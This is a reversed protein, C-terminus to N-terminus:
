PLILEDIHCSPSRIDRYEEVNLNYLAQVAMGEHAPIGSYSFSIAKRRVGDQVLFCSLHTAQKGVMRPSAITCASSFLPEPFGIGFPALIQIEEALELTAETLSITLDPAHRAQAIFLDLTDGRKALFDHALTRFYEIQGIGGLLTLGGAKAHGGFRELVTSCAELLTVVDVGEISRVSGKIVGEEQALVIVPRKYEEVLRGALLGIVGSSWSPRYVILCLDELHGEAEQHAERFQTELMGQREVNCSQLHDAWQHAKESDTELLLALSPHKGLYEDKHVRSPANLRPALRFGIDTGSINERPIDAVEALARLGVNRTKHLVTLGFQVLARNEGMLPVMDAVTSLAVLDLLWKLSTPDKGLHEYLAWLLKWGLACGCLEKFPYACGPQKPNLIALADDAIHGESPQHHDCVITDVGQEKLHAIEEKAVTGNDVTILLTSQTALIRQVAHSTLGYGESRRPILPIVTFGLTELGRTLLATAPVGDADYDGFITISENRALAQELRSVALDMGKLLQPSHIDRSFNPALFQEIDSEAVGRAGLLQILRPNNLM